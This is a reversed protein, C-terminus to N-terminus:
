QRTPILLVVIDEKRDTVETEELKRIKLIFNVFSSRSTGQKINEAAKNVPQLSVAWSFVTMSAGSM